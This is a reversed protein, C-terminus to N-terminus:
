NYNSYPYFSKYSNTDTINTDKKLLTFNWKKNHFNYLYTEFIVIYKNWYRTSFRVSDNSLIESNFTVFVKNSYCISDEIQRNFKKLSDHGNYKEMRKNIISDFKSVIKHTWKLIPKNFKNEILEYYYISDFKFDYRPNFDEEHYSTGRVEDVYNFIFVTDYNDFPIKINEIILSDLEEQNQVNKISM